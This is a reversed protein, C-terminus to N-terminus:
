ARILQELPFPQGHGPYVTVVNMVRLKDLSAQAAIPDDMISNLGPIKTNEFLDGCLLEGRSTLVGISGKSHGPLSIVRADWGYDFLDQGDELLMDPKFHNVEGLKILQRAAFRMFASGSKRNWFMDGREAMGADDAHMAILGGFKKRLHAANGTHDFDGHTIIILKLNGPECSADILARELEARQATGGTDVLVFGDEARVLYVNVSGTKFSMPLCIRKFEHSM